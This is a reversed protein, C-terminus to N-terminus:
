QGDPSADYSQEVQARETLLTKAAPSQIAVGLVLVGCILAAVTLCLIRVRALNTRSTVLSQICFLAM